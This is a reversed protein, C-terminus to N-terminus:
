VNASPEAYYAEMGKVVPQNLKCDSAPFLTSGAGIIKRNTDAAKLLRKLCYAPRNQGTFLLKGIIM